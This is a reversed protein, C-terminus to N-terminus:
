RVFFSSGDLASLTMALFQQVFIGLFYFTNLAVFQIVQFNNVFFFPSKFFIFLM